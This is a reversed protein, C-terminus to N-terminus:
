TTTHLLWASLSVFTTLLVLGIIARKALKRKTWRTAPGVIEIDGDFEVTREVSM